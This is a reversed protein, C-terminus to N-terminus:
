EVKKRKHEVEQKANALSHLDASLDSSEKELGQKAKELSARVRKAQELQESLEEVTQTHKQRMEQVQAEHNRGEEEMVKKLMAVEQERKTRLEQQAATTDLTDELESRLANLEEGLDRCAADARRRAAGRQGKRTDKPVHIEGLLGELERVRRVAAVCAASEEELRAQTALLEEEKAALQARLEALQAQLDALQEQLDALETELKRKAKEVDQRGKEEKKMRVELDSIMSEHKNKLKTLNKSKEEEEALNSSSDAIREELLKREKELQLKQRSDEEESLHAEMAQLQQQMDKREQQLQTAREEEEELRSEMEHLVEELEQKKVELRVRMEEAEAYLETEAQLKQELKAREEVVQTHKQSIEKLEVQSKQALDKASKLEEEKQGMEEEQRTVQLLPKVKTFLRWWQWNKLVLYVACNRQIVKMATLQAQRKSFARRSLFSRAHAQFAIIVVTLKLDREEELQALVGTRFFMKSQGIRFLNPDLDLHKMMLQCAQKGDMFGKPICNAALIEYRQRFEQFVIRNPFGQRCIRIGELVGNCRLQELVLNADLKGARKEHNPIICRIFNPQTNNLTTMLKGLSEKYLQGVTRFMGKKSKTASPGLERVDQYHDGSGGCPG